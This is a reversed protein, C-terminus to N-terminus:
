EFVNRGPGGWVSSSGGKLKKKKDRESKFKKVEAGFKKVKAGFKRARSQSRIRDKAVRIRDAEASKLERINARGELKVSRERMAKLREADRIVRQQQRKDAKAKFGAIVNSINM